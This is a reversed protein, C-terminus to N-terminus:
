LVDKDNRKKIEDVLKDISSKIGFLIFEIIVLIIIIVVGQISTM